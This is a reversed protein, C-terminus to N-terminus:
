VFAKVASFKITSAYYSTTNLGTYASYITAKNAAMVSFAALTFLVLASRLSLVVIGLARSDKGMPSPAPNYMGSQTGAEM